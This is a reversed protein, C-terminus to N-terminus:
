FPVEMETHSPLADHCPKCLLELNGQALDQRYLQMRVTSSVYRSVYPKGHPHHFELEFWAGCEKCVGRLEAMLDSKLRQYKARRKDNTM